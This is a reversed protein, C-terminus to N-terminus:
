SAIDVRGARQLVIRVFGDATTLYMKDGSVAYDVMLNGSPVYIQRGNIQFEQYMEDDGRLPTKFHTIFEEDDTLEIIDGRSLDKVGTLSLVRWKGMAQMPRMEEPVEGGYGAFLAAKQRMGNVLERESKLEAFSSSAMRKDLGELLAYAKRANGEHHYAKTAADLVLYEDVLHQALALRPAPTAGPASVSLKDHGQRGTAAVYSLDIEMLPAGDFVNKAPLQKRDSSKGLSAFIGGGNSSLFATPVTVSVAGDKGETMLGDPVGFVGTIRYGSRPSMTITVDHAVESVMNRFEKEFVAKGDDPSTVFFVNGGRVSSIKTALAGDYQVGVGITTMGIGQRSAERAIGMFTGSDTNGTNPQEDTFLMMRTRGKFAAAERLAADYGMKLGAELNTSGDIAIADISKLIHDKNGEVAVPALHVLSNTGYIAIGLRDQPGLEAVMQRLSAKVAAIPAGSMSGSRDVIAMVSIPERRWSEADINSAFGLGVFLRDDPRTPLSAEMSHAVLCFLQDCKREAPLALDHEGMLGELTLSEPRPLTQASIAMSRFHKIDQAGGQRVSSTVIIESYQEEDEQQAADQARTSVVVSLLAIALLPKAILSHRPLKSM